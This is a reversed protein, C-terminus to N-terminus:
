LRGQEIFCLCYYIENGSMHAICNTIIAPKIPIMDAYQFGLLATM